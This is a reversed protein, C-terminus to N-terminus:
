KPNITQSFKNSPITESWFKKFIKDFEYDISSLDRLIAMTEYLRSRSLKRTLEPDCVIKSSNTFFSRVVTIIPNKNDSFLKVSCHARDQWLRTREPFSHHSAICFRRSKKVTKWKLIVFTQVTVSSRVLLPM